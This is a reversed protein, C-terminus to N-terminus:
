TNLKRSPFADARPRIWSGASDVFSKINDGYGMVIGTNLVQKHIPKSLKLILRIGKEGGSDRGLDSPKTSDQVAQLDHDRLGGM